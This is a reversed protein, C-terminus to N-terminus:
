SFYEEYLDQHDNCFKDLQTNRKELQATLEKNKQKLARNESRRKKTIKSHHKNMNHHKKVNKILEADNITDSLKETLIKLKNRLQEIEKAREESDDTKAHNNITSSIEYARDLIDEALSVFGM